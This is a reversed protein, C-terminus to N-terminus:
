IIAFARPGNHGPRAQNDTWRHGNIHRLLPDQGRGARTFGEVCGRITKGPALSNVRYEYFEEVVCNSVIIWDPSDNARCCDVRISFCQAHTNWIWFTLFYYDSPSIVKSTNAVHRLRRVKFAMASTSLNSIHSFCSCHCIDKSLKSRVNPRYAPVRRYLRVLCELRQVCCTLGFTPWESPADPMVLRILTTRAKSFSVIGGLM